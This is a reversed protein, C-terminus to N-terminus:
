KRRWYSFLMVLAIVGVAIGAGIGWRAGTSLGGRDCEYPRGFYYCTDARASPLAMILALAGLATAPSNSRRTMNQQLSGSSDTTDRGICNKAVNSVTNIDKHTISDPTFRSNGYLHTSARLVQNPQYTPNLGESSNESNPRSRYSATRASPWLPSLRHDPLSDKDTRVAERIEEPTGPPSCLM